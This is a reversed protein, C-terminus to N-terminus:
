VYLEVTNVLCPEPDVSGLVAASSPCPCSEWEESRLALEGMQRLDLSTSPM